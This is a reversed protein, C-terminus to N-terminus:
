RSIKGGAKTVIRAIADAGTTQDLRVTRSSRGLAALDQTFEDPSRIDSIEAIAHRVTNSLKASDMYLTPRGQQPVVAFTLPIPTHPIDSGRINFTWAVAHPDSVILADAKLKGLESSIRALKSPAAEGAFRIDHLTVPGRPPPPRDTWIADVPNP